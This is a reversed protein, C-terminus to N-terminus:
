NNKQIKSTLKNVENILDDLMEYSKTPTFCHMPVLMDNRTKDGNELWWNRMENDNGASCKKTERYYHTCDICGKTSNSNSM